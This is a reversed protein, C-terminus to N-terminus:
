RKVVLVIGGDGLYRASIVENEANRDVRALQYWEAAYEVEQKWEGPNWGLVAADLTVPATPKRKHKDTLLAGGSVRVEAPM